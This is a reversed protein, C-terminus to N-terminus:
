KYYRAIYELRKMDSRFELVKKIFVVAVMSVILIFFVLGQINQVFKILELGTSIDESDSIYGKMRKINEPVRDKRFGGVVEWSVLNM